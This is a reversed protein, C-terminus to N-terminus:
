FPLDPIEESDVALTDESDVSGRRLTGYPAGGSTYGAVFSFDGSETFEREEPEKQKDAGRRRLSAEYAQQKESSLVKLACLEKMACRRDVSYRTRYAKVIHFDEDPTLSALWVRADRLRAARAEKM